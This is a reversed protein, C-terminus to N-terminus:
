ASKKLNQQDCGLCKTRVEKKNFVYVLKKKGCEPCGRVEDRLVKDGAKGGLENILSQSTKGDISSLGCSGAGCSSPAPAQEEIQTELRMAEEFRGADRYQRVMVLGDATADDFIIRAQEPDAKVVELLSNKLFASVHIETQWKDVGARELELMKQALKESVGAYEKNRREAEAPVDAYDLAHTEDVLEGMFVRRGVRESTLTDVLKQFELAGGIVDKRVMVRTAHQELKSLEQGPELVGLVRMADHIDGSDQVTGPVAIQELYREQKESDFSVVRVMRKEIDPVYGGYAKKAKGRAKDEEYDAIAWDACESVTILVYEDAYPSQIFAEDSIEHVYDNISREVDETEAMPSIGNEHIRRVSHGYAMFCEQESDFVHTLPKFYGWTMKSTAEAVQRDTDGYLAARWNRAEESDAGHRQEAEIVQRATGTMDIPMPVEDFHGDRLMQMRENRIEEGMQRARRAIFDFGPLEHLAYALGEPFQELNEQVLEQNEFIDTTEFAAVAM